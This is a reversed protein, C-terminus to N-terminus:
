KKGKPKNAQYIAWNELTVSMDRELKEEIAAKGAELSPYTDLRRTHASAVYVRLEGDGERVLSFNILPGIDLTHGECSGRGWRTWKGNGM